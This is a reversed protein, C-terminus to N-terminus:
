PSSASTRARGTRWTSYRHRRMKYNVHLELEELLPATELLNVLGTVWSTDQPDSFIDLNMNLYRLTIFRIQTDSFTRVQNIDLLLFLKHLHPLATPLKHFTRDLKYDIEIGRFNSLFTAESLKLSESLAVKHVCDDFEFKTLNPAHLEIMELGYARVHLYQLRRLEQGICISRGSLFCWKISLSELLACSLLLCQLHGSDIGVNNLALKKLNMLGCFRPPVMLRVCRLDLSEVCSSNPGSLNCIQVTYKYDDFGYRDIMFDLAVHKARSM